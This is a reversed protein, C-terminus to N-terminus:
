KEFFKNLHDWNFYIRKTNMKEKILKIKYYTNIKNVGIHEKNIILIFYADRWDLYNLYKSSFLPYTYFYNILASAGKKNVIRVRWANQKGARDYKSVSHKELKFECLLTIKSM